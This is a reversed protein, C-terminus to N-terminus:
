RWFWNSKCWTRNIKRIKACNVKYFRLNQFMKQLVCPLFPRFNPIQCTSIDQGGEYSILNPWLRKIKRTTACNQSLSITSIWPKRAKQLSTGSIKWASANHRLSSIYIVNKLWLHSLRHRLPASEYIRELKKVKFNVLSLLSWDLQCVACSNNSPYANNTDTNSVPPHLPEKNM